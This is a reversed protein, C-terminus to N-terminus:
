PGAERPLVTFNLFSAAEGQEDRISYRIRLMDFAGTRKGRKREISEIRGEVRYSRDTRLPRHLEIECGAQVAGGQSLDFGALAIVEGISAEVGRFAAIFPWFPHAADGTAAPGETLERFRRDEAAGIEITGGELETGPLHEFGPSTM